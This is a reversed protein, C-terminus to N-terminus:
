PRRRGSNRSRASGGVGALRAQRADWEEYADVIDAVIRTRVVDSSTLYNFSIGGVGALVEEAQTLGSVQGSGLDVQTVDGTVVLQSGIGLRTLLMKMQAPTTNQAEDAVVFANNLTRGRMYALPALEIAGAEILKPVDEGGLLDHLADYLPRLYPNIKEVLTGPLYGLNEGAEVAPRTLVLRRVKGQLLAEVAKAMALYTKGTGAPGIAFTVQHTDLADLYKQQGRTKARVQKGGLAVSPSVSPPSADKLLSIAQAVVAPELSVGSRVMKILESMLGVALTVEGKPGSLLVDRDDVTLRVNPFGREITRLVLDSAGFLLVPDIGEPLSVKKVAGSVTDVAM